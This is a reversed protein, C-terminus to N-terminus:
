ACLHILSLGLENLYHHQCIWQVHQILRELIRSNFNVYIYIYPKTRTKQLRKNRLHKLKPPTRNWEPNLLNVLAPLPLPCWPRQHWQLSNQLSRVARLTSRLKLKPIRLRVLYFTACSWAVHMCHSFTHPLINPHYEFLCEELSNVVGPPRMCTNTDLHAWSLMGWWVCWEVVQLGATDGCNCRGNGWSGQSDPLGVPLYTMYIKFQTQFQRLFLPHHLLYDNLSNSRWTRAILPLGDIYTFLWQWSSVSNSVLELIRIMYIVFSDKIMAELLNEEEDVKLAEQNLFDIGHALTDCSWMRSTDTAIPSPKRAM